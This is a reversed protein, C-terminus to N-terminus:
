GRKRKKGTEAISMSTDAIEMQGPIPTNDQDLEQLKFGDVRRLIASVRIYESVTMDSLEAKKAIIAYDKETMRVAVRKEKNM